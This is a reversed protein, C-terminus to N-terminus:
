ENSNGYKRDTGCPGACGCVEERRIEGLFSPITPSISFGRIVANLTSFHRGTKLNWAQSISAGCAEWTCMSRSHGGTLNTFTATKRIETGEFPEFVAHETENLHIEGVKLTLADKGALTIRHQM